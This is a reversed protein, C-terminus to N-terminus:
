QRRLAHPRPARAPLLRRRLDRGRARYPVPVGAAGRALRVVPRAAGPGPALGLLATLITGVGARALRERGLVVAAALAILALLGAAALPSRTAAAALAATVAGGGVVLAADAASFRRAARAPTGGARTGSSMTM